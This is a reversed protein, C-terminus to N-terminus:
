KFYYFTEYDFKDMRLLKRFDSQDFKLIAYTSDPMEIQNETLKLETKIKEFDNESGLQVKKVSLAGFHLWTVQYINDSEYNLVLSGKFDRISENNKFSFVTDLSEIQYYISDGIQKANFEEHTKYFVLKGNEFGVEGKLSDLESVPFGPEYISKQVITRNTVLLQHSYNMTYVGIYKKPIVSLDSEKVPQPQTFYIFSNIKKEGCSVLLLYMLFLLFGKKM